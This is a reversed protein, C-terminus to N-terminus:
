GSGAGQGCISSARARRTASRPIMGSGRPQDPAGAVTSIISPGPSSARPLPPLFRLWRPSKMPRGMVIFLSPHGTRKRMLVMPPTASPTSRAPSFWIPRSGRAGLDRALGRTLGSLASKSAAYLTTGDGPTRDAVISGITIIRGGTAMKEAVKKAALFPARVNIAFVRDFADDPYADLPGTIALGAVTVLIDVRGFQAIVRDIADNLAGADSVDVQLATVAAGTSRLEGAFQEAEEARSLYFIALSVGDAIMRRSIAAGIGRTGGIVLAIKGALTSM